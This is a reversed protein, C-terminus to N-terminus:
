ELTLETMDILDESSHEARDDSRCSVVRDFKRWRCNEMFGARDLSLVGKSEPKFRAAMTTDQYETSARGHSRNNQFDRGHEGDSEAGREIRPEGLVRLVHSGFRRRVCDREADQQTDAIRLRCGPVAAHLHGASRYGADLTPAEGVGIGAVLCPPL